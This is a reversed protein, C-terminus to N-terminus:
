TSAHKNPARLIKLIEIDNSVVFPSTSNRTSHHYNLLCYCYNREKNNNLRASLVRSPPRLSHWCKRPTLRPSQSHPSLSGFTHQRLVDLNRCRQLWHEPTQPEGKYLPCTTDAAPDLLRANAKLLPTDQDYTPLSFPMQRTPPPFATHRGPSINTCWPQESGTPRPIPSPADSSLNPQLLHFTAALKAM